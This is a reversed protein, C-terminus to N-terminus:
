WPEMPGMQAQKLKRKQIRKEREAYGKKAGEYFDDVDKMNMKKWNGYKQPEEKAMKKTEYSFNGLVDKRFGPRFYDIGVLAADAVYLGALEVSPTLVFRNVYGHFMEKPDTTLIQYSFVRDYEYCFYEHSSAIVYALMPPVGYNGFKYGWDYNQDLGSPDIANVPDNGCYAYFNSGGGFGIPDKTTWRATEPDYERAGFHHLNTDADWLSGAWGFPQSFNPYSTHNVRSVLNGSVDWKLSQVVTGDSVKVVQRVSGLHDTVLRYTGNYSQGSPIVMYDPVHGRTAYIFYARVVNNGDLEAVPASDGAYLYRRTQATVPVGNVLKRREIRRGMPDSKYAITTTGGPLGVSQLNGALDYTYTTTTGGKTRTLMEGDLNYAYTATQTATDWRLLRDQADYEATM